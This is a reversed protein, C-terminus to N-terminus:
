TSGCAQRAQLQIQSSLIENTGDNVSFLSKNARYINDDYGTSTHTTLKVAM